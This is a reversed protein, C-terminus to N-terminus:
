RNGSIRFNFIFTILCYICYNEIALVIWSTSRVVFTNKHIKNIISYIINFIFLDVSCYKITINSFHGQDYRFYLKTSSIRFFCWAVTLVNYYKGWSWIVKLFAQINVFLSNRWTFQLALSSIKIGYTSFRVIPNKFNHFLLVIKRQPFNDIYIYMDLTM